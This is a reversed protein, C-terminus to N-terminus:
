IGATLLCASLAYYLPGQFMEWGQTPSPLSWHEQIYTIYEVHSGADFGIEHPLLPANHLFLLAWFAAVALALWPWGHLGAAGDWRGFGCVLVGALLVAVFLFLCLWPWCERLAPGTEELGHLENGPGFKAIASALRAPRWLSGGVSVSWDSDTKVVAGDIALRLSLAPPGDDNSVTATITNTGGRLFPAANLRAVDKWNGDPKGNWPLAIGNIYIQSQRFARWSIEARAPTAALVLQRVFDASVRRQSHIQAQLPSPYVIWDAVGPPLLPIAADRAGKWCLWAVAALVCCLLLVRFDKRWSLSRFAPRRM